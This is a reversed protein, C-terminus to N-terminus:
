VLFERREALLPAPTVPSTTQCGDGSSCAGYWWGVVIVFVLGPVANILKVVTKMCGRALFISCILGPRSSMYLHLDPKAELEECGNGFTRAAERETYSPLAPSRRRRM